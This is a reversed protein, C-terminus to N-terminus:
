GLDFILDGDELRLYRGTPKAEADLARWPGRESDAELLPAGADAAQWFELAGASHDPIRNGLIIDSRKPDM